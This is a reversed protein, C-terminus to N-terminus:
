VDIMGRASWGSWREVFIRVWPGNPPNAGYQPYRAELAAALPPPEADISATGDARVWWLRDWDESREDFLVAVRPELRINELRRLPRGSKPKHDVAFIIVDEVVAHVIPVVHPRGDPSLTALTAFRTGAAM